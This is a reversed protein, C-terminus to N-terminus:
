LSEKSTRRASIFALASTVVLLVTGIANISPDLKINIRGYMILPLTKDQGATFFAVIFEDASLAMALLMSGLVAPLIIPLTITRFAHFAGAGLDRAAEILSFRFRDLTASIVLLVFPLSQIIQGAITAGLSFGVGLERYYVALGIAFLLAPFSMPIMAFFMVAGKTRSSLGVIGLGALTGLIATVLGTTVAAIASRGMARVVEVDTFIEEYWRLSFGQFPFAMRPSSHFSFLVVIALPAFLFLLVAGVYLISPWPVRRWRALRRM